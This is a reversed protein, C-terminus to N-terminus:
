SVNFTSELYRFYTLFFMKSNELATQHYNLHIWFDNGSLNVASSQCERKHKQCNIERDPQLFEELGCFNTKLRSSENRAERGMMTRIEMFKGDCRFKMQSPPDYFNSVRIENRFNTFFKKRGLKAADASSSSCNPQFSHYNVVRALLRLNRHHFNPSFKISCVEGNKLRQKWTFIKWM